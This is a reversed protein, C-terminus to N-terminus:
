KDPVPLPKNTGLSNAWAQVSAHSILNKADVDALADLTWQRREKQQAMWTALAQKIIWGRSRDLQETLQDLAEAMNIPVHATLVRTNAKM